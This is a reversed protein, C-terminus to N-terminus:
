PLKDTAIGSGPMGPFRTVPSAAIAIIVGNPDLKFTQFAAAEFRWMHFVSRATRRRSSGTGSQAYQRARAYQELGCLPGPTPSQSPFAVFWCPAQQCNKVSYILQCQKFQLQALALEVFPEDLRQFVPNRNGQAPLM